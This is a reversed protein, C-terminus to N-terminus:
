RHHEGRVSLPPGSNLLRRDHRKEIQALKDEAALSVQLGEVEGRSGEREAETIRDTRNDRGLRIPGCCHAASVLQESSGTGINPQTNALARNTATVSSASSGDDGIVVIRNDNM